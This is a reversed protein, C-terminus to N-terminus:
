GSSGDGELPRVQGSFHNGTLQAPTATINHVFTTPRDQDNKFFNHSVTIEDTPQDVGEEGIMIANAQNGTKPGKEMRNGTAILTGGNPIDILYSSTGLPGDEIVCGRVVTRLARSKISHGEKTGIFQSGDVELAAIKGAYIAHACAAQCTGNDIFQSGVVRLTAQPNEATLIGDQNNVFRVGDVTLNGGEARIGAGNGDAVRARQLTLNRVTDDNGDIVLLAKGGCTKDTLVAGSGSGQITLNDQRVTACDFYTGPAIDIVDGNGAAAIAASPTRYTRGPGVQLTAALAPAAAVACALGLMFSHRM